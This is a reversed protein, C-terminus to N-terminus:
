ISGIISGTKEVYFINLNLAIINTEIKGIVGQLSQTLKLVPEPDSILNRLEINKASITECAHEIPSIHITDIKIVEFWRLIGPLPSEIHYTTREIWLTQFFPYFNKLITM